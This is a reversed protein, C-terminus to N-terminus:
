YKSLANKAVRVDNKIQSLEKLIENLKKNTDNGAKGDETLGTASQFKKVFEVAKKDWMDDGWIEDDPDLFNTRQAGPIGDTEIPQLHWWEVVGPSDIKNLPLMLGYANLNQKLRSKNVWMSNSISEWFAGSLDVALGHEHWSYGPLAVLGSPKGYKMVDANYLRQTEEIPRYGLTYSMEQKLDRALAALRRLFVISLKSGHSYKFKVWKQWNPEEKYKNPTIKM